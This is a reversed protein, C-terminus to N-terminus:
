FLHPVEPAGGTKASPSPNEKSREFADAAPLGKAFVLLKNVGGRVCGRYNPSEKRGRRGGRLFPPTAEGQTASPSPNSGGSAQVEVTKLVAANSREAM